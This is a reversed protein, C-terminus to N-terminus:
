ERNYKINIDLKFISIFIKERKKFFSKNGLFIDGEKIPEFYNKIELILTNDKSLIEYKNNHRDVISKLKCEPYVKNINQLFERIIIGFISSLHSKNDVENDTLMKSIIFDGPTSPKETNIPGDFIPTIDFSRSRLHMSQNLDTQYLNMLNTFDANDNVGQYKRILEVLIGDIVDISIGDYVRKFPLVIRIKIENISRFAVSVSAFERVMSRLRDVSNNINELIDNNKDYYVSGDWNTADGSNENIERKLRISVIPYFNDIGIKKYFKNGKNTLYFREINIEYGMDMMETFIDNIDEESIGIGFDSKDVSEFIKWKKLYKM